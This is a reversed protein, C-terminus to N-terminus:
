GKQEMEIRPHSNSNREAAAKRLRMGFDVARPAESRGNRGTFLRGAKRGEVDALERKGGEWNKGSLPGKPFPKTRGREEPREGAAARDRAQM